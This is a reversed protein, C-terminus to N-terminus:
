TFIERDVTTLKNTEKIMKKTNNNKKKQQKFILGYIM